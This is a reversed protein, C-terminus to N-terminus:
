KTHRSDLLTSALHLFGPAAFLFFYINLLRGSELFLYVGFLVLSAVTILGGAQAAM